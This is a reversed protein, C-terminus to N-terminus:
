IVLAGSLEKALAKLDCTQAAFPRFLIAPRCLGFALDAPAALKRLNPSVSLGFTSVNKLLYELPTMVFRLAQVYPKELGVEGTGGALHKQSCM